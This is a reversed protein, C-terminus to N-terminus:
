DYKEYKECMHVIRGLWINWPKRYYKAVRSFLPLWVLVTGIRVSQIAKQHEMFGKLFNHRMHAIFAAAMANMFIVSIIRETAVQLGRIHDGLSIEFCSFCRSMNAYM